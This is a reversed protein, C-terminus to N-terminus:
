TLNGWWISRFTSQSPHWIHREPIDFGTECLSDTTLRQWCFIWWIPMYTIAGNCFMENLTFFIIVWILTQCNSFSTKCLFPLSLWVSFRYGFQINNLGWSWFLLNFYEHNMPEQVSQLGIISFRHCLAYVVSHNWLRYHWFPCAMSSKSISMSFSILIAATIYWFPLYFYDLWRM